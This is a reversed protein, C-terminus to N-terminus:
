VRSILGRSWDIGIPTIRHGPQLFWFRDELDEMAADVAPNQRAAWWPFRPQTVADVEMKGTEIDAIGARMGVIIGPVRHHFVLRVPHDVDLHPRITPNDVLRSYGVTELTGDKQWEEVIPDAYLRGYYVVGHTGVTERPLKTQLDCLDGLDSGEADVAFFATPIRSFMADVVPSLGSVTRRVEADIGDTIVNCNFERNWDWLRDTTTLRKGIWAHTPQKGELGEPHTLGAVIDGNSSSRIKEVALLLEDIAESALKGLALKAGRMICVRTPAQRWRAGAEHFPSSPLGAVRRKMMRFYRVLWRDVNPIDDSTALRKGNRWRLMIDPDRAKDGVLALFQRGAETLGCGTGVFGV